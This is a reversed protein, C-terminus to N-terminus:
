SALPHLLNVGKVASLMTLMTLMTLMNARPASADSPSDRRSAFGKKTPRYPCTGGKKAESQNSHSEESQNHNHKPKPNVRM